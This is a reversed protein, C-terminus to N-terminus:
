LQGTYFTELENLWQVVRNRKHLNMKWADGFNEVIVENLKDLTDTLITIRRHSLFYRAIEKVRIGMNGDNIFHTIIEAPLKYKQFHPGKLWKGEPYHEGGVMQDKASKIVFWDDTGPTITIEIGKKDFLEQALGIDCEKIFKSMQEGCVGNMIDDYCPNLNITCIGPLGFRLDIYEGLRAAYGGTTYITDAFGNIIEEVLEEVPHTTDELLWSTAARITEAIESLIIPVQKALVALQDALSPSQKLPLLNNGVMENVQSISLQVGEVDLNHSVRRMFFVDSVERMLMTLETESVTTLTLTQKPAKFLQVQSM